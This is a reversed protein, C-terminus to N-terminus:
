DFLDLVVHVPPAPAIPLPIFTPQTSRPAEPAMLDVFGAFERHRTVLIEADVRCRTLTAQAAAYALEPTNCDRSLHLLAIWRPKVEGSQALIQRLAEAAQGNSLHGHTGLVRAIMRPHRGSQREMQEDHNFELAIFDCNAILPALRPAFYGLDSFYAFRVPRAAERACTFVFAHTSTSDHPVEVPLASTRETVNFEAAGYVRVLDREQMKRFTRVEGLELVHDEHVWIVVDNDLLLRLTSVIFHDGHLHTIVAANLKRTGAQADALARKDTKERWYKLRIGRARIAAVFADPALGFDILFSDDGDFVLTCNGSSGSALFNVSFQDTTTSSQPLLVESLM